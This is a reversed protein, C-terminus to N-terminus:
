ENLLTIQEVFGSISVINYIGAPLRKGTFDDGNWIATGDTVTISSVERGNIDFVRLPTSDDCNFFFQVSGGSPNPSATLSVLPSIPVDNGDVGLYDHNFWGFTPFYDIEPETETQVYVIYLNGDDDVVGDIGRVDEPYEDSYDYAIHWDVLVNGDEDMLLNFVKNVWNGNTWCLYFEETGPLHRLIFHNSVDMVPIEATVLTKEDVIVEGTNRHIKWLVFRAGQSAGSVSEVIMLNGSSDINLEPFRSCYLENDTFDLLPITINGELDYQLYEYTHYVPDMVVVHVRNGDVLLVGGDDAGKIKWEYETIFGSGPAPTWVAYIVDSGINYLVHVRGLSDPCARIIPYLTDTTFLYTAPTIESGDALSRTAYYIPLSERWFSMLSDGMIMTSLYLSFMDRSIMTEPYLETGDLSFVKYGIRADDNFGAWVLHFRGLADLHLYQVRRNTNASDTVLIPNSWGPGPTVGLCTLLLICFGIM